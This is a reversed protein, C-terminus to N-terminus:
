DAPSIIIQIKIIPQNTQSFHQVTLKLQCIRIEVARSDGDRSVRAMVRLTAPNCQRYHPACAAIFQEKLLPAAIKQARL